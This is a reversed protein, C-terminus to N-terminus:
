ITYTGIEGVLQVLPLNCKNRLYILTQPIFCEIVVPAIETFLNPLTSNISYNADTLVSLIMDGMNFGIKLYFEPYKLEMYIGSKKKFNPLNKILQFIETLTPIEYLKDYLIGRTDPMRQNVRLLKLEQIFLLDSTLQNCFLIKGDIDLHHLRFLLSHMPSLM